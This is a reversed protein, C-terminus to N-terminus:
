QGIIMYVGKCHFDSEYCRESFQSHFGLGADSLIDFPNQRDDEIGTHYTIDIGITTVSDARLARWVRGHGAFFEM